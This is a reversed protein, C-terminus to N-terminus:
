RLGEFLDTERKSGGNVASFARYFEQTGWMARHHEPTLEKLKRYGPLQTQHASVARWVQEWHAATDIVTTILWDHWGTARREVGDVRMALDGFVSQYADLKKQSWAMFYFKAVRHPALVDPLYQSDAACVLAAATFQSVAIHDPHGYGGEPGFTLVVQPRIRRVHGVIKAIVERPNAREVEGDIYNLFNVERIGLARAAVRLEQERIKGLAALGPNDKEDGFWGHEGRTATVLYTEVGEAAYKALTGGIGLSEDDPHALVALLKEKKEM